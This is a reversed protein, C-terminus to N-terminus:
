LKGGIIATKKIKRVKGDPRIFEILVIYFGMPAKSRSATMGDWTFVGESGLLVNNALQRVQRGRADYVVINVACDPDNERITVILLDDHGDNDPSFM